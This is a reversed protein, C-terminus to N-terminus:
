PRQDEQRKNLMTTILELAYTDADEFGRARYQEVLMPVYPAPLRIWLTMSPDERDHPRYRRLNNM